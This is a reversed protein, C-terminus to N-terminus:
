YNWDSFTVSYHFGEKISAMEYLTNSHALNWSSWWDWLWRDWNKKITITIAISVIHKFRCISMQYVCRECFNFNERRAIWQMAWKRIDNVGFRVAAFCYDFTGHIYIEMKYISIMINKEKTWRKRYIYDCKQQIFGFGFEISKWQHPLLMLMLNKLAGNNYNYKKNLKSKPMVKITTKIETCACHAKANM